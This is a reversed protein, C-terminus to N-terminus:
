ARRRASKLAAELQDIAFQQDIMEITDDTWKILVSAQRAQAAVRAKDPSQFASSIRSRLTSHTTQRTSAQSAQATRTDRFRVLSIINGSNGM